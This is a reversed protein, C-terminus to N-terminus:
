RGRFHAPGSARHHSLAAKPVTESHPGAGGGLGRRLQPPSDSIGRGKKPPPLPHNLPWPHNTTMM